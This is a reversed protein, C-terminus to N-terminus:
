PRYLFISIKTRRRGASRPVLMRVVEGLACLRRRLALHGLEVRVIVDVKKVAYSWVVHVLVDALLM